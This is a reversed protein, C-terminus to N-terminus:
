FTKSPKRKKKHSQKAKTKMALGVVAPIKRKLGRQLVDGAEELAKSASAGKKYAQLGQGMSRVVSPGAIQVLERIFGRGEMTPPPYRTLSGGLM